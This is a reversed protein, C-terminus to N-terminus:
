KKLSYYQMIMYTLNLCLSDAIDDRKKNTALKEVNDLDGRVTYIENAKEIVWKKRQAKLLGGPCGLLQTKNYAPIISIKKKNGYKISFYSYIHQAIKIATLNVRKGFSMQEEIVIEDCKDLYDRHFDLLETLKLFIEPTLCKNSTIKNDCSIDTNKYYVTRSCHYFEELFDTYIESDSGRQKTSPCIIKSLIDMDYEEILFSFNVVGPDFSCVTKIKNM